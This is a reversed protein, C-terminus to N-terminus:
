ETWMLGLSTPVKMNSSAKGFVGWGIGLDLASQCGGQEKVYYKEPDYRTMWSM